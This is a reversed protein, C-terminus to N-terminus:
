LNDSNQLAAWRDLGFAVCATHVPTKDPRLIAFREGFFAGHRNISAVAVDRRAPVARRKAVLCEVYADLEGALARPHRNNGRVRQPM